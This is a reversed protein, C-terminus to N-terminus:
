LHNFKMQSIGDASEPSPDTSDDTMDWGWVRVMMSSLPLKLCFWSLITLSPDYNMLLHLKQKWDRINEKHREHRERERQGGEVIEWGFAGHIRIANVISASEGHGWGSTVTKRPMMEVRMLEQHIGHEVFVQFAVETSIGVIFSRRPTEDSGNLSWPWKRKFSNNKENKNPHSRTM